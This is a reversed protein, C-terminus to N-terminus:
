MAGDGSLRAFGGHQLVAARVGALVGATANMTILLM